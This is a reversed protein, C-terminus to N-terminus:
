FMRGAPNATCYSNNPYDFIHIIQIILPCVIVIHGLQSLESRWCSSPRFYTQKKYRDDPCYQYDLLGDVFDDPFYQYYQAFIPDDLFRRSASLVKSRAKRKHEM